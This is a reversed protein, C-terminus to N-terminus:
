VEPAITATDKERGTGPCLMRGCVRYGFRAGCAFCRAYFIGAGEGEAGRWRGEPERGRCLVLRLGAGEGRLPPNPLPPDEARGKLGDIARGMAGVAM